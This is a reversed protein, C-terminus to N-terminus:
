VTQLQTIKDHLQRPTVNPKYYAGRVGLQELTEAFDAETARQNMTYLLVPIIQWEPYSRLEYLLEIGNHLGLQLELVIVDPEAADIADVATQANRAWRVEHGRTELEHLTTGALVKDPEVLLIKM